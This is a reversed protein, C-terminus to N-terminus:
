PRSYKTELDTEGLAQFPCYCEAPCSPTRTTPDCGNTCISQKECPARDEHHGTGRFSASVVRRAGNLVVHGKMAFTTRDRTQMSSREVVDRVTVELINGTVADLTASCGADEFGLAVYCAVSTEDGTLPGAETRFVATEMLKPESARLSALDGIGARKVSDLGPRLHQEQKTVIFREPQSVGTSAQPPASVPVSASSIAPAPREGPPSAADACGGLIVLAIPTVCMRHFWGPLAKVAVFRAAFRLSNWEPGLAIPIKTVSRATLRGALHLEL